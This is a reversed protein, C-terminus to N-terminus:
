LTMDYGFVTSYNIDYDIHYRFTSGICYDTEFNIDKSIILWFLVQYVTCTYGLVHDNSYIIAYCIAYDISMSLPM